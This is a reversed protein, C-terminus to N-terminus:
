DSSKIVDDISKIDKTLSKCALLLRALKRLKQSIYQIKHNEHGHKEYLRKGLDLIRLDSKVTLTIDDDRMINLVKRVLGEQCNPVPLLLRGNKVPNDLKENLDLAVCYKSHKSIDRKKYLAKCKNCPVLDSVTCNESRKKPIIMGNGREFVSINHSFDGKNVQEEWMRRRGKSKKKKPLMLIKCVAHEKSHVLELHRAINALLKDCYLCAHLKNKINGNENKETGQFSIKKVNLMPFIDSKEGDDESDSVM